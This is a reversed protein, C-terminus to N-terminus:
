VASEYIMFEKNNSDTVSIGPIKGSPNVSDMYQQKSATHDAPSTKMMKYPYNKIACLFMIARTPQSPAFGYLKLAM